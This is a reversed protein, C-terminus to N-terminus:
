PEGAAAGSRRIRDHARPDAASLPLHPGDVQHQLEHRETITVLAARLDFGKQKVMEALAKGCTRLGHNAEPDISSACRPDESEAIARDDKEVIEIEDLVILAFPQLDRSFGLRNGHGAMPGLARVHLTAYPDGGVKVPHVEEIRYSSVRFSRVLGDATQFIRVTPDLYYPLSAKRAAENVEAVLHHWRRGAVDLDDEHTLTALATAFGPDIRKADQDLERVLGKLTVLEM